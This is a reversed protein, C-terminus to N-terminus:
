LAVRRCLPCLNNLMLWQKICEMHFKHECSLKGIEVGNVYDDQCIGCAKKNEVNEEDDSEFNERNISTMIEEETKGMNMNEDEDESVDEDFHEQRRIEPSPSSMSLFHPESNADDSHDNYTSLSSREVVISLNPEPYRIRPGPFTNRRRSYNDMINGNEQYSSTRVNADDSHDNYTSLSSREVVISLNPELYRIRPGPFANRRRSYNNVINSNEQYSSTRVNQRSRNVLFREGRESNPSSNSRRISSDSSDEDSIRYAQRNQYGRRGM